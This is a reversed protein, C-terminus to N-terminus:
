PSQPISPVASLHLHQQQHQQCYFLLTLPPYNFQAGSTTKLLVVFYLRVLRDTVLGLLHPRPNHPISPVASLHLHQQQHQKKQYRPLRLLSPPRKRRALLALNFISYLLHLLSIYLFVYKLSLAYVVNGYEFVALRSATEAQQRAVEKAANIAQEAAVQRAQEAAALATQEMAEVRALQLAALRAQELAERRAQEKAEQQARAEAEARALEQTALRAQETDRAKKAAVEM